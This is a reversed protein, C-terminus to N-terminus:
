SHESVSSAAADGTVLSAAYGSQAKSPASPSNPSLAFSPSKPICVPLQARIQTASRPSFTIVFSRTESTPRPARRLQRQRSLAM